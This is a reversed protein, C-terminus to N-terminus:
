RFEPHRYTNSRRWPEWASYIHVLGQLHPQTKNVALLLLHIAMLGVLEGRYSCVMKSSEPFSCWLQGCGQQCEIVLAAFQISLFLKKTYSGDTVAICSGDQISDAIWDDERFWKMNGWMWMCGWKVLVEHFSKPALDDLPGDAQTTITAEGTNKNLVVTCM